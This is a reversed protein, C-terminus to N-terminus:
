PGVCPTTVRFNVKNGPANYAEIWNVQVAGHHGDGRTFDIDCASSTPRARYNTMVDVFGNRTCTQGCLRLQQALAKQGVWNLFLLDGGLGTLDTNPRWKRYQAEFERIDDAYRAFPGTYDGYSYPTFMVSGVLPPNLADAGLTQSIINLGFVMWIPNYLQAKGAKIIQIANLANEWGFVVDARANKMALIADTYNAQKDVVKVTAVINLGAAKAMAKFRDTGPSWNPSDREIIGIRLTRYKAIALQAFGEGMREVTPLASFSYKLGESGKVTATHHLYLIHEQEVYNRVAPIQDFGIGGLIMFPNKAKCAVAATKADAATYNDNEYTAVVKRGYIGGRANLETWFVNFDDATTNFAAGYTLAAHACLTIQADTIGIRDEKVTFLTSPKPGGTGGTRSPLPGGPNGPNAGGGTPGPAGPGTTVGGPGTVSPAGTPTDVGPVQEGPLPAQSEPVQQLSQPAPAASCACLMALAALALRRAVNVGLTM